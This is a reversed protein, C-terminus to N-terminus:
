FKIKLVRDTSGKVRVVVDNRQTLSFGVGSLQDPTDEVKMRSGLAEFVRKHENLEPKLFENYFGNPAEPNVCDKLMFFLHQNGIGKQEDWYNPSYCIVSAPIFDNTKVGWVEKSSTTSPLHEKITFVGDKLTVTAVMIKEGCRVRNSYDFSFIRGDFEVEARFGYELNGSFMVVFLQYEGDRMTRRSDWTINEVAVRGRPDIIDVDLRGKTVPDIANGYYIEFKGPTICHADLDSNDRHDEKDNWQISFRLDGDVKGGKERVLEKMSDTMNGAYAWSFNNNWKFMTKSDPVKPAILSMLNSTHRNELYVDVESATPLIDEVFTKVSVEEVRGFKKPKKVVKKSMDAFIDEAGSIRQSSDRNAFLINNVTIDDLTAYRRGLSDLYGLETLTNKADDLMKQTFIAKPRKYNSPAVIVEYSRVANNLDVGNTIDTLLVGISHNRIKGIVAGAEASKEWAFLERQEANLPEYAVKYKRFKELQRKWEAGRYLTNSNILELVTDISDLSIEELSRKFVNRIDRAQGVAESITGRNNLMFRNFVFQQPLRLFFHDFSMVKGDPLSVHNVETGVTNSKSLYVETVRHAKVYDSMKKVVPEYITGSVDFDWITSVVGDKIAVVNGINKIFHRCSSCDYERRNKFIPNDEPAFSELYTNWMEDKDVEVTYLRPANKTMAEFHTALLNRFETFKM